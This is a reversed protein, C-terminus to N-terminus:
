RPRLRGRRRGPPPAVLLGARRTALRPLSSGRRSRRQGEHHRPTRRLTGLAEPRPAKSGWRPAVMLGHAGDKSRSGEEPRQHEAEPVRRAPRARVVVVVEALVVALLLLAGDRHQERKGH